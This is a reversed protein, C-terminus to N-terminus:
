VRCAKAYSAAGSKKKEEALDPVRRQRSFHL